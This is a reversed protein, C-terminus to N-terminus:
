VGRRWPYALMMCGDWTSLGLGFRILIRCYPSIWAPMKHISTAELLAPERAGKAHLEPRSAEPIGGPAHFPLQRSQVWLCEM